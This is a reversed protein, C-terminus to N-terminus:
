DAHRRRTNSTRQSPEKPSLTFAHPLGLGRGLLVAPKSQPRKGSSTMQAAVVPINPGGGVSVDVVPETINNMQLPISANEAAAAALAPAALSGADLGLDFSSALGPDVLNVAQAIADIVPQVIVDEMDAHARPATALPTLGFALFAGATCSLGVVRRRRAKANRSDRNQKTSRHPAM